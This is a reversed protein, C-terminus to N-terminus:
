MVLATKIGSKLSNLLQDKESLVSTKIESSVADSGFKATGVEGSIAGSDSVLPAMLVVSSLRKM